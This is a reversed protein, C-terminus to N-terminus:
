KAGLFHELLTKHNITEDHLARRLFKAWAQAATAPQGCAVAFDAFTSEPKLHARSRGSMKIDVDFLGAQWGDLVSTFIRHGQEDRLHAPSYALLGLPNRAAHLPHDPIHYGSTQAIAEAIAELIRKNM